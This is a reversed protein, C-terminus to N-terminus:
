IYQCKLTQWTQIKFPNNYVLLLDEITKEEWTIFPSALDERAEDSLLSYDETRLAPKKDNDIYGKLIAYSSNFKGEMENLEELTLYEEDGPSLRAMENYYKTFEDKVEELKEISLDKLQVGMFELADVLFKADVAVEANIEQRYIDGEWLCIADVMSIYEDHKLDSYDDNYATLSGVFIDNAGESLSYTFLWKNYSPFIELEERKFKSVIEYKEWIEQLEKESKAESILELYKKNIDKFSWYVDLEFFRVADVVTEGCPVWGEYFRPLNGSYDKDFDPNYSIDNYIEFQGTIVGVIYKYAQELEDFAKAVESPSKAMIIKTSLSIGVWLNVNEVSNPSWLNASDLADYYESEYVVSEGWTYIM